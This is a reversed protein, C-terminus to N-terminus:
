SGTKMAVVINSLYLSSNLPFIKSLFIGLLNAPLIIFLKYLWRVLFFRKSKRHFLTYWYLIWMQFLTTVFNGSKKYSVVVFGNKGMIDHLAFQTYRAYDNPVEHENWVFPCTVLLHGGTKMVRNIETLIENLNFVHEFVESSLVSDFYEDNFPLKIGDYFYDIQENAHSHGENQYDVGIYEKVNFLSQYPKTGCGFDMMKGSM